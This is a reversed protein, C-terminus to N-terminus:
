EEERDLENTSKRGRGKCKKEQRNKNENKQELKHKGMEGGTTRSIDKTNHKM